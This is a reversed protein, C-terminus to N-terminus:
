RDTAIQFLFRKAAKNFFNKKGREKWSIISENTFFFILLNHSKSVSGELFSQFRQKVTQKQKPRILIFIIALRPCVRLLKEVLAKGVFGTAGTVLIVSEAFFAEISSEDSGEEHNTQANTTGM